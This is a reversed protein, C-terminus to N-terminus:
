GVTVKTSTHTGAVMPASPPGTSGSVPDPHTHANYLALFATGLVAAETAGATGLETTTSNIVIKGSTGDIEIYSTASTQVRIKANDADIEVYLNSNEKSQIRFVTPTAKDSIIVRWKSLEFVPVDPDGRNVGALASADPVETATGEGGWWGPLYFLETHDGLHCLLGVKAGLPPPSYFGYPTVTGGKTIGGGCLTGLPLAWFSLNNGFLASCKVRVRGRNDREAVEGIAFHYPAEAGPM